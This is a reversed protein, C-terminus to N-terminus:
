KTVAGKVFESGDPILLYGRGAGAVCHAMRHGFLSPKDANGGGHRHEKGCFPCQIVLDWNGDKARIAKAYVKIM